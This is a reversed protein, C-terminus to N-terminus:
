VCVRTYIHIFHTHATLKTEKVSGMYKNIGGGRGTYIDREGKPKKTIIIVILSQSSTLDRALGGMVEVDGYFSFSVSSFNELRSFKAKEGSWLARHIDAAAATPYTRVCIYVCM